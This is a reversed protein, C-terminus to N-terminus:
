DVLIGGKGMELHEGIKDEYDERQGSPFSKTEKIIHTNRGYYKHKKLLIHHM